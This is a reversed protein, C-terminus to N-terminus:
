NGKAKNAERTERAERAERAEHAVKKWDIEWESM